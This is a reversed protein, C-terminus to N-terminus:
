RKSATGASSDNPPPMYSMWKERTKYPGSWYENNQACLYKVPENPYCGIHYYGAFQWKAGYWVGRKTPKKDSWPIANKAAKEQLRRLRRVLPHVRGSPAREKVEPNVAESM